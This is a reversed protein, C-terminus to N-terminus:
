GEVRVGSVDVGSAELRLEGRFREVAEVALALAAGPVQLGALRLAFVALGALDDASVQTASQQVAARAFALASEAGTIAQNEAALRTM